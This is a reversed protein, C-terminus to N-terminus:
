PNRDPTTLAKSTGGGGSPSGSGFYGRAHSLWLSTGAQDTYRTPVMALGAPSSIVSGNVCCGFHSRQLACFIVGHNWSSSRHQIASHSIQATGITTQRKWPGCGGSSCRACM